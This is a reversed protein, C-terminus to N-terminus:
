RHIPELHTPEIGALTDLLRIPDLEVPPGPPPLVALLAAADNSGVATSISAVAPAPIPAPNRWAHIADHDIGAGGAITLATDTDHDCRADLTDLVLGPQTGADVLITATEAPSLGYAESAAALQDGTAAYRAALTLGIAPDDIGAAIGAAFADLTPAHAVLHGAVINPGHGAAAMTGAALEWLHPDEPLARLIDRPRTAMIETATCGADRMETATAGLATAADTNPLDWHEHLVRIADAMPVGVTPLLAAVIDADVHEAHLVAVTAAPSLGAAGLLEVLEGPPAIALRQRDPEDLRPGVLVTLEHRSYDGSAAFTAITTDLRAPDAVAFTRMARQGALEAADRAEDVTRTYPFREMVGTPAQHVAPMWRGGPGPIAYLTVQDSLHRLEASSRGQGPMAEWGGAAGGPSPGSMDVPGTLAPYRTRVAAVADARAQDLTAATGTALLGNGTRAAVDELRWGAADGHEVAALYATKNLRLYAGNGAAHEGRAAWEGPTYPGVTVWRGVPLQELSAAPLRHRRGAPVVRDDVIEMRPLPSAVLDVGVVVGLGATLKCAPELVDGLREWRERPKLGSPDFGAPRETPALGVRDAVLWAVQERLVPDLEPRKSSRRLRGAADALVRHADDSKPLRGRVTATAVKRAAALFETDAQPGTLLAPLEGPTLADPAPRRALQDVAFVPRWEWREVAARTPRSGGVYPDPETGGTTVPVRVPYGHEGARVACGRGEHTSPVLRWTEVGAVPGDAGYSALLVQNRASYDLWSQAGVLVDEWAAPTTLSSAAWRDLHAAMDAFSEFSIRQSQRAM